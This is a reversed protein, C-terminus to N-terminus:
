IGVVEIHPLRSTDGNPTELMFNGGNANALVNHAVLLCTRLHEYGTPVPGPCGTHLRGYRPVGTRAARLGVVPPSSETCDVNERAYGERAAKLSRTPQSLEPM